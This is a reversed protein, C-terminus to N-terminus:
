HWVMLYVNIEVSGLSSVVHQSIMPTFLVTAYIWIGIVLYKGNKELFSIKILSFFRSLAIMGVSMWEAYVTIARLNSEDTILLKLICQM